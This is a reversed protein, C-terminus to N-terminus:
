YLIGTGGGLYSPKQADRPSIQNVGVQVPPINNSGATVYCPGEDGSCDVGESYKELEFTLTGDDVNSAQYFADDTSPLDDENNVEQIFGFNCTYDGEGPKNVLPNAEPLSDSESEEYSIEGVRDSVLSM